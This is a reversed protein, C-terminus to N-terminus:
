TAMHSVPDSWDSYGTSGGIARVKFTYNTGPTLGTVVIKRAQTSTGGAQWTTGNASSQVEYAHANVISTVRLALQGSAENLIQTISPKSLPQQPAHGSTAAQFGSLLITPVDGGAVSQVYAAEQRLAAVLQERAANKAATAAVGGGAATALANQFAAVLPQLAPVGVPPTPFKAAHANLGNYVGAAFEALEADKDNAFALSVHNPASM